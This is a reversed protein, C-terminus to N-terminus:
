NRVALPEDGTLRARLFEGPEVTAMEERWDAIDDTSSREIRARMGDGMVELLYHQWRVILSTEAFCSDWSEGFLLSCKAFFEQAHEDFHLPQVRATEMFALWYNTGLASLFVHWPQDPRVRLATAKLGFPGADVPVLSVEPWDAM